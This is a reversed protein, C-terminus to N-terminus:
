VVVMCCVRCPGMGEMLQEMLAISGELDRAPANDNHM